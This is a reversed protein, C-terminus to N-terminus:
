PAEVGRQRGVVRHGVEERSAALRRVRVLAVPIQRESLLDPDLDLLGCIRVAGPARLRVLGLTEDGTVLPFLILDALQLLKALRLDRVVVDGREDVPQDPVLRLVSLLHQERRAQGLMEQALLVVDAGRVRHVRRRRADAPGHGPTM